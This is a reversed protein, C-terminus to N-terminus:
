AVTCERMVTVWKETATASDTRFVVPTMNAHSLQFLLDPEIGEYYDTFRSVEYGLLVMSDAAATDQTAKFSFLVKDKILYWMRKWKRGKQWKYLYGSMCAAQDNASVEKLREPRVRMKKEKRGSKRIKQVREFLGNLGLFSGSEDEEKNHGQVEEEEMIPQSKNKDGEVVLTNYCKDCVRALKYKLYRLQAKNESCNACVVWGCARCHHRRWTVTFECTCLMCMTVRADPIWLPAKHGLVFDKDLLSQAGARVAEFTNRKVANEDIASNLAAIWDDREELTSGQLTFSRQVSIISFEMKFDDQSAVSVKMGALPLVNNLRYGTAVPTTYLLVDNFLFFYRPQMEKRSLKMLEGEKLFVRGPRIVEFQGILSRQIELMKQVYDEHRMNENAHNAVESVINLATQMEKMEQSDEPLHKVYDQLLLRYQPIRQIPKLMYHKLALKACRPSMEFDLAAAQFLPYKKLADDYTSTITEFDRIYSSFLKLFPGKKVFIDAIGKKEDWSNVRDELDKLLGENFTQIQPLYDLIRNLVENPIVPRGQKETADSIHKRFDVNLLKLVDVFVRESSAIEKAIMFLKKEKKQNIKEEDEEESESSSQMMGSGSWSDTASHSSCGSVPRGKKGETGESLSSNSPVLGSINEESGTQARSKVCPSSTKPYMTKIISPTKFGPSSIDYDFSSVSMDETSSAGGTIVSDFDPGHSSISSNDFSHSNSLNRPPLKPPSVSKEERYRPSIGALKVSESNENEPIDQYDHDGDSFQVEEDNISHYFSGTTDQLASPKTIHIAKKSKSSPNVLKIRENVPIVTNLDAVPAAFTARQSVKAPPPPAKRTPRLKRIPSKDAEGLKRGHGSDCTLRRQVPSKSDSTDKKDIVSKMVTVDSQSRQVKLLKNRKPKPPHPKAKTLTFSKNAFNVDDDGGRSLDPLSETDSGCSDYMVQTMSRFRKQEKKPRPPRIPTGSEVDVSRSREQRTSGDLQLFPSSKKEPSSGSRSLSSRTLSSHKYSRTLIDEIENLLSSPELISKDHLLDNLSGKESLDSKGNSTVVTEKREAEASINAKSLFKNSDEEQDSDGLLHEISKLQEITIEEDEDVSESRTIKKRLILPEDNNDEVIDTIHTESRSTSRYIVKYDEEGTDADVRKPVVGLEKDNVSSDDHKRKLLSDEDNDRNNVNEEKTVSEANLTDESGSLRHVSLRKRPAPRPRVSPTPKRPVPKPPTKRNGQPKTRTESIKSSKVITESSDAEAHKHSETKKVELLATETKVSNEVKTSTKSTTVSEKNVSTDHEGETVTASSKNSSSDFTEIGNDNSIHEPSSTVSPKAPPKPVSKKPVVPSHKPSAKSTDDSKNFWVASNAINQKGQIFHIADDKPDGPSFVPESNVVSTEETAFWTSKGTKRHFNKKNIVSSTTDTLRESADATHTDMVDANVDSRPKPKVPVTPSVRSINEASSAFKSKLNAFAFNEKGDGTDNKAQSLNSYDCNAEVNTENATNERAFTKSSTRGDATGSDNNKLSSDLSNETKLSLKESVRPPYKPLPPPTKHVAPGKPFTKPLPPPPNTLRPSICTRAPPQSEDPEEPVAPRGTTVPSAPVPEPGNQYSARSVVGSPKSAVPPKQPLSPKPRMSQVPPRPKTTRPTSVPHAETGNDQPDM